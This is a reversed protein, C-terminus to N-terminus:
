KNRMSPYKNKWKDKNKFREIQALRDEAQKRTPYTGLHKGEKSYIKYQSGEKKIIADTWQEAFAAYLDSISFM